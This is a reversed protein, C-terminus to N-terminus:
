RRQSASIPRCIPFLLAGITEFNQLCQVTNIM